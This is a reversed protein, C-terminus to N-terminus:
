RTGAPVYRYAAAQAAVYGLAGVPNRKLEALIVVDGGLQQARAALHTRVCDWPFADTGWSKGIEITGVFRLEGAQLEPAEHLVQVPHDGGLPGFGRDVGRAVSWAGQLAKADLPEKRGEARLLAQEFGSGAVRATSGPTAPVEPRSSCGAGILLVALLVPAHRM